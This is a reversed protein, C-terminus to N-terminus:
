PSGREAVQAPDALWVRRGAAEIPGHGTLRGGDVWLAERYLNVTTCVHDPVLLALDGPALRSAGDVRVPLHEESRPAPVLEPHGVVGLGPAPCDPAIAKSGADLTLRGPGPRAVVRSLVFAGQRLDLDRAAPASRRDSLVVTGPCVQHLWPGRALPEHALAFPYTHSGSTAVAAVGLDRALAAVEDYGRRAAVADDATLHGDYAHLGALEIGPPLGRDLIARWARATTGTRAMGTDVDIWARLPDSPDLGAAALHALHEAGDLLLEVQGPYARTLARARALHAGYAPFALLVRAEHSGARAESLVLAVEDVTAAKFHRVGAALLLRVIPGHKVTKVHPRWRDPDRVRAVMAAVNHRVADLDLVLAPTLIRDRHPRLADLVPHPM